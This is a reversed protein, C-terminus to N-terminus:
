DDNEQRIQTLRRSVAAAEATVTKQTYLQLM